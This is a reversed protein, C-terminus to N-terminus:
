GRPDFDIDAFPPLRRRAGNPLLTGRCWDLYAAPDRSLGWYEALCTAAVDIPNANLSKLVRLIKIEDTAKEGFGSKAELTTTGHRVMAAVPAWAMSEVKRASSTQIS